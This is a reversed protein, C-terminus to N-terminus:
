LRAVQLLEHCLLGHCVADTERAPVHNLRGFLAARCEFCSTYEEPLEPVVAEVLLHSSKVM